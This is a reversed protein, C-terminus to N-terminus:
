EKDGAARMKFDVLNDKEEPPEFLVQQRPDEDFIYTNGKEDRGTYCYSTHAEVGALKVDAVTKVKIKARDSDPTFKLKFVIERPSEAEVSKDAINAAVKAISMNFLELLAGRAISGLNVPELQPKPM